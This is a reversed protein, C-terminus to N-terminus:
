TKYKLQSCFFKIMESIFLMSYHIHKQKHTYKNTLRTFVFTGCRNHQNTAHLQSFYRVLLENGNRYKLGIKWPTEKITTVVCESFPKDQQDLKITYPFRCTQVFIQDNLESLKKSELLIGIQMIYTKYRAMLSSLHSKNIEM